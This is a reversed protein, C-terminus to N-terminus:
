LEKVQPNSPSIKGVTRSIQGSGISSQQALKYLIFPYLYMDYDIIIHKYLVGYMRSHMCSHMCAHCVSMCVSMCAHMCAHMCAFLCALLCVFLFVCMCVCGYLSMKTIYISMKKM